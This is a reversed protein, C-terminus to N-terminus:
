LRTGQNAVSCQSTLEGIHQNPNGHQHMLWMRHASKSAAKAGPASTSIEKAWVM